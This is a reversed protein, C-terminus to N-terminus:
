RPANFKYSAQVFVGYRDMSANVINTALDTQAAVNTWMVWYRGGVTFADTVAYSALLEAQVGNGTGSWPFNLGRARHADLGNYNVYPLFPFDGGLKFNTWNTRPESSPIDAANAPAGLFLALVIAALTPVALIPCNGRM